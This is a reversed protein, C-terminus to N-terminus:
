PQPRSSNLWVLTSNEQLVEWRVSEVHGAKPNDWAEKAVTRLPRYFRLSKKEHLVRPSQIKLFVWNGTEFQVEHRPHGAQAKMGQIAQQLHDMRQVLVTARRQLKKRINNTKPFKERVRGAATEFCLLGQTQEHKNKKGLSIMFGLLCVEGHPCSLKLTIVLHEWDHREVDCDDRILSKNRSKVAAEILSKNRSKVAAGIVEKGLSFACARKIGGREMLGRGLSAEKESYQFHKREMSKLLNMKTNDLEVNGCLGIKLCLSLDDKDRVKGLKVLREWSCREMEVVCLRVRTSKQSEM